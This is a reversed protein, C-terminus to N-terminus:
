HFLFTTYRTFKILIKKIASHNTSNM